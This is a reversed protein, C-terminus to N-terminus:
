VAWGLGRGSSVDRHGGHALRRAGCDWPWAAAEGVVDAYGKPSPPSPASADAATAGRRRSGEDDIVHDRARSM